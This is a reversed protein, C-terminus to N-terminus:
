GPQPVQGFRDESGTQFYKEKLAAVKERDVSAMVQNMTASRRLMARGRHTVYPIFDLDLAKSMKQTLKM